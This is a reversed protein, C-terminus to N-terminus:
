GKRGLWAKAAVVVFVLSSYLLYLLHLAAARAAFFNGGQRRFFRYLDANLAWLAAGAPILGLWWLPSRCGGLFFVVVGWAALASGRSRKDLNLDDPLHSYSVILRTWPIARDRIDTQLLGGLTWAKLHTVQIDPCLRIRYGARRLRLGMEIDEVSPRRYREDFGGLARFVKQRVAGCGAWFTSAERRGHQHVYHHLLNKYRSVFGMAVPSADYSGFLAAVEPNAAMEREVHALTDTHVVVDADLFLLMEGQAAAAGHNRARAPGWPGGPLSIVRAGLSEAIDASGDTSADDV